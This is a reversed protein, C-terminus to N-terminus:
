PAFANPLFSQEARRPPLARAMEAVATLARDGEPHGLSDNLQKFGDLDMMLVSLTGGYRRAREVDSRLQRVFRGHNYLDTLGDRSALHHLQRERESVSAM